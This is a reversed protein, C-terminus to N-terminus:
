KKGIKEKSRGWAYVGCVGGWALWFESPLDILPLEAIKDFINIAFWATWPLVVHNIFLISLGAYIITPRARKTYNDTQNLEAVIIAQTADIKNSELEIQKETISNQVKTMEIKLALKEEKSTHLNDIIDGVPKFAGTVFSAIEALM